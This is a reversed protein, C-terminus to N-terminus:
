CVVSEIRLFSVARVCDHQGARTDAKGMTPHPGNRSGKKPPACKGSGADARVTTRTIRTHGSPLTARM